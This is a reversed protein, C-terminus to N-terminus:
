DILVYEKSGVDTFERGNDHKDDHFDKKRNCEKFLPNDKGDQRFEREALTAM